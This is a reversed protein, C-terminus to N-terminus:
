IVQSWTYACVIINIICIVTTGVTFKQNYVKCEYLSLSIYTMMIITQLIAIGIVIM